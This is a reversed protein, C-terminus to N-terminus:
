LSMEANKIIKMFNDLSFPKDIFNIAGISLAEQKINNDATVFIIKSSNNMKLIEKSAEIGNKMPMRYDMLIIDPKESLSKYILVAEEGNTAYGVIQDGNLKLFETYFQHLFVEDDVILIRAM